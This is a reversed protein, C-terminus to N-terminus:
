AGGRRAATDDVVGVAEAHDALARALLGARVPAPAVADHAVETLAVVVDHQNGAEGLGVGRQQGEDGARGLDLVQQLDGRRGVEVGPGRGDGRQRGDQSAEVDVLAAAILQAADEVAVGRTHKLRQALEVDM